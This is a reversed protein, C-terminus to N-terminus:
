PVYVHPRRTSPEIPPEPTLVAVLSDGATPLTGIQIPYRENTPARTPARPSRSDPFLSARWCLSDNM